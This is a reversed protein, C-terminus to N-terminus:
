QTTRTSPVWFRVASGITQIFEDPDTPKTVYANASYEYVRRRDDPNRSSSLVVIPVADFTSKGRLQKLIEFGSTGPLNLDLLVLDISEASLSDDGTLGDIAQRGNDYSRLELETGVATVGEEILRADGPNDDISVICLTDSETVQERM